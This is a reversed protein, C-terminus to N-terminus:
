RAVAYLQWKGNVGKLTHVGRDTFSLGSGAVLDVVTRSVVIERPGATSAVRDAIHVAIGSVDDGRRDIEGTHLGARIDVGHRAIADVISSACRVAQAPTEFTALIGDGRGVNSVKHGDFLVLQQSVERDHVDLFTKWRRDGLSAARQTSGVIDTLLVTALCRGHHHSPRKRMEALVMRAVSAPFVLEGNSIRRVASTIEDADATKLVYGSAGAIVADAVERREDSSSVILVKAAPWAAVITATAESGSVTPLGLDMIIVDPRLRLAVELAESGDSCEAVVKAARDHELVSRLTDRWLPHDDVMMVKVREDRM